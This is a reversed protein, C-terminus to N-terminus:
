RQASPLVVSDSGVATASPLAAATDSGVVAASQVSDSVVSGTAADAAGVVGTAAPVALGDTAPQLGREATAVDAPLATSTESDGTCASLALLCGTIASFVIRM